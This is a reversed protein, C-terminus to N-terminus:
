TESCNKMIEKITNRKERYKSKFKELNENMEHFRQERKDDPPKDDAMWLMFNRMIKMQYGITYEKKIEKELDAGLYVMAKKCQDMTKLLNLDLIEDITRTKLRGKDDLYGFPEELELTKDAVRDADTKPVVYGKEIKDHPSLAFFYMTDPDFDPYIDTPEIHKDQTTTKTFIVKHTRDKVVYDM